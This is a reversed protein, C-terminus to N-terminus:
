SRIKLIFKITEIQYELIYYKKFITILNDTYYRFSLILNCNVGHTNNSVTNRFKNCINIINENEKQIIVNNNKILINYEHLKIKLEDTSFSLWLNLSNHIPVTMDEYIDNIELKNIESLDFIYGLKIEYYSTMISMQCINAYITKRQLTLIRMKRAYFCCLLDAYDKMTKSKDNKILLKTINNLKDKEYYLKLKFNNIQNSYWAVYNTYKSPIAMSISNSSVQALIAVTFTINLFSFIFFQNIL